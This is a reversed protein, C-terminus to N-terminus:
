DGESLTLQDVLRVPAWESLVPPVSVPSVDELPTGPIGREVMNAVDRTLAQQLFGDPVADSVAMETVALTRGQDDLIAGSDFFGILTQNDLDLIRGSDYVNAARVGKISWIGNGGICVGIQRGAEGYLWGETFLM